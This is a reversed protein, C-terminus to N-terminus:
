RSKISHTSPWQFRNQGFGCSGFSLVVLIQQWIGGEVKLLNVHAVRNM